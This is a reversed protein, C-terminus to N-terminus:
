PAEVLFGRAILEDVALSIGARSSAYFRADRGAREISASASCPTDFLELLAEVEMGHVPRLMQMALGIGMTKAIGAMPDTQEPVDLSAPVRAREQLLIAIADSLPEEVREFVLDNEPDFVFASEEHAVILVPRVQPYLLSIEELFFM